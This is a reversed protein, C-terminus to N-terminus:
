RQNHHVASICHGHQRWLCGTGKCLGLLRLLIGKAIQKHGILGAGMFVASLKTYLDGKAFSEVASAEKNLKGAM